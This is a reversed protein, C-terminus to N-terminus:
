KEEALVIAGAPCVQACLGCGNCLIPNISVHDEEQTLPSCGLELCTGCNVCTDPDVTPPTHRERGYLVCQHRAIIVSPEKSNLHDELIRSLTDIEYPDVVDIKSFGIGRCLDELAIEKTEQKQLTYGTGPHMQHGTMATVRNDLIICTTTGKNYLVNILPTIGSHFFTSDGLVAVSRDKIGAKDAGHAVGISAGMCGTTHMAGLPPAAGLTYCGIDGFVVVNAERLVHFVGRHGCGPCLMPPRVPLDAQGVSPDPLKDEILGAEVACKRILSPSFEGLIPFVDKGVCDIGLLRVHEEIFPDLEEIVVVKKVRAAFDKILKRPLPYIMGLKLFTANPFVERAYQYSTGATIIGLEDDGPEIRNLPSTEAYEVLKKLREEVVPHRRRANAPVMVYKGINREYPKLEAPPPPAANEDVEVVSKSHAVRTSTRIIVPTDYTESIELAIGVFDKCEQSDSPELMPVKAFKAYNRNDQENQSSHMGPDDANVIVLGSKMGTYSVYFLSDAAVNLGVHKMSVMARVGAYAAGVGVDLAVKENPAWEAYVGPYTAFNEMIETSPTGPYGSGVRVGSLYAGYAIAENGSMLKKM